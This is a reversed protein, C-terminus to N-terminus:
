TRNKSSMKRPQAGTEAEAVTGTRERYEGDFEKGKQENYRHLHVTVWRRCFGRRRLWSGQIKLDVAQMSRSNAVSFHHRTMENKLASFTQEVDVLDRVHLRDWDVLDAGCYRCKGRQEQSTKKLQKICHLDDECGASTCRIKLRSSVQVDLM